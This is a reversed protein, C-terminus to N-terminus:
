KSFESMFARALRARRLQRQELRETRLSGASTNSHAKCAAPTPRIPRLVAFQQALGARSSASAPQSTLSPLRTLALPSVSSISNRIVSGVM